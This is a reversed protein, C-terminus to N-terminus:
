REKIALYCYKLVDETKDGFLAGNNMQYIMVDPYGLNYEILIPMGNENVAFDWSIIGFYPMYEHYERIKDLIITHAPLVIESLKQKAANEFISKGFITYGECNLRGDDNIGVTYGSGTSATDVISGPAGVRLISTLIYVKGNFLMSIIKETNVSSENFSGHIKHQKIKTQFIFDKKYTNEINNIDFSDIDILSVGKGSGSQKTPKIIIKESSNKILKVAENKSIIKEDNNIYYGNVNRVICGPFNAIPLFRSMYSKDEWESKKKALIREIVNHYFDEPIFKVDFKGTHAYIYRHWRLDVDYFGYKKYFDRVSKEQEKSLVFRDKEANRKICELERCFHWRLRKDETFRVIEQILSKMNGCSWKM